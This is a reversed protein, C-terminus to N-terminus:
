PCSPEIGEPNLALVTVSSQAERVSGTPMSRIGALHKTGDLAYTSLSGEAAKPVLYLQIIQSGLAPCIKANPINWGGDNDIQLPELPYYRGEVGSKVVLWLEMNSPINQAFGNAGFLNDPEKTSTLPSSITAQIQPPDLHLKIFHYLPVALVAALSGIIATSLAVLYPHRM